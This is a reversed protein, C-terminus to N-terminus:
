SSVESARAAAAHVAFTDPQAGSLVSEYLDLSRMWDYRSLVEARAAPVRVPQPADLWRLAETAMVTPSGNICGQRGAFDAVGEYAEPTA